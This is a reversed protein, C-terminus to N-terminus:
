ATPPPRMRSTLFKMTQHAQSLTDEGSALYSSNPVLGVMFDLAGALELFAHVPNHSVAIAGLVGSSFSNLLNFVTGAASGMDFFVGALRCRNFFSTYQQVKVGPHALFDNMVYYRRRSVISVLNEDLTAKVSGGGSNEGKKDEMPPVIYTGSRPNLTGGGTVFRFLEFSSQTATMRPNLEVAQLKLKGDPRFALFDVGLHGMLGEEACARAVTLAADQFVAHPVSSQPFAAGIFRYSDAFIHKHTSLVEISGDPAIFVNVNPSGIAWNPCPEM